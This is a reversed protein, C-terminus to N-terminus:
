NVKHYIYEKCKKLSCQTPVWCDWSSGNETYGPAGHHHKELWRHKKERLELYFNSPPAGGLKSYAGDEGRGPYAKASVFREKYIKIWVIVAHIGGDNLITSSIPKSKYHSIWTSLFWSKLM